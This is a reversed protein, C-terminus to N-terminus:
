AITNPAPVTVLSAPVSVLFRWGFLRSGPTRGIGSAGCGSENEPGAITSRSGEAGSSSGCYTGCPSADDALRDRSPCGAGAGAIDDQVNSGPGASFGAFSRQGPATGRSSPRPAPTSSVLRVVMSAFSRIELQPTPSRDTQNVNKANEDPMAFNVV